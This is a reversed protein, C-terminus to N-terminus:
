SRKNLFCAVKGLTEIACRDTQSAGVYDSFDHIFALHIVGDAAATGARLSNLDDLTSRLVEAGVASLAAASPDSRALGVVQHGAEPLKPVVLSGIHGSAGTVFVRM